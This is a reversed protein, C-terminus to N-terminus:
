KDLLDLRKMWRWLTTRDVDYAQATRQKNGDFRDLTQKLEEATPCGYRRGDNQDKREQMLYEPLM